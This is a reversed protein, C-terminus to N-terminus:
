SGTRVTSECEGIGSQPTCDPIPSRNTQSTDAAVAGPRRELQSVLATGAGDDTGRRGCRCAVAVRLQARDSAAERVVRDARRRRIGRDRHRRERVTDRGAFPECRQDAIGSGDNGRDIRAANHPQFRDGAGSPRGDFRRLRWSHHGATRHCSWPEIFALTHFARGRLQSARRRGRNQIKRGTLVVATYAGVVIRVIKWRTQWGEAENARMGDCKFDFIAFTTHSHLCEIDFDDRLLATGDASGNAITDSM